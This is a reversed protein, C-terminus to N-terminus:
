VLESFWKYYETQEKGTHIILTSLGLRARHWNMFIRGTRGNGDIFPHIKEYEVHMKQWDAPLKKMKRCWQQVAGSIHIANLAAHGGIYVMITRFRGKDDEWIPQNKMLLRHTQLIVATTLKPQEICFKWAEAADELSQSSYVGEIANSEQLFEIIEPNMNKYKEDM